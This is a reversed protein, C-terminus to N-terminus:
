HMFTIKAETKLKEKKRYTFDDCKRNTEVTNMNQIVSTM